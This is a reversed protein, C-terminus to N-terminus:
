RPLRWTIPLTFRREVAKGATDKAPTFRSRKTVLRCAAEDLSYSGSSGTVACATARGNAAITLAVRTVGTEGARRAADPYDLDGFGIDRLSPGSALRVPDPKPTVTPIPPLPLPPPPAPTWDPTGWSSQVPVTPTSPTPLANPRDTTATTVLPIPASLILTTPTTDTVPDVTPPPVSEPEPPIFRTEIGGHDPTVFLDPALGFVFAAGILAHVAVVTGVSVARRRRDITQTYAM